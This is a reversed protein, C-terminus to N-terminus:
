LGETVALAVPEADYPLYLPHQPSGDGNIRLATPQLNADRVMKMVQGVRHPRKSGHTGWGCVVRRVFTLGFVKELQEDARSGNPFDAAKLDDPSTARYSFLNVIEIRNFGWRRAFGMCKRVTPDDATADATSPNLLIWCCSRLPAGAAIEFQRWLHYRHCGEVLAGAEYIQTM